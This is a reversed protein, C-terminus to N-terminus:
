KLKGEDFAVLDIALFGNDKASSLADKNPDFLDSVPGDDSADMYWSLSALLTYSCCFSRRKFSSFLLSDASCLTVMLMAQLIIATNCYVILHM